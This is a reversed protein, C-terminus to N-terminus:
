FIFHSTKFSQYPYKDNKMDIDYTLQSSGLTECSTGSRTLGQSTSSIELMCASCGCNGRVFFSLVALSEAKCLSISPSEEMGFISNREEAALEKLSVDNFLLAKSSSMCPALCLRKEADVEELQLM